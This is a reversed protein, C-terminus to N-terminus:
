SNKLGVPLYREMLGLRYGTYKLGSRLLASPILWPARRVLYQLESFVFRIGEQEANGLESRVWAERAHFKGIDFYRRFEQAPSYDHSHFVMADACYAVKWDALLMKAAVYTDESLIASAPFGGVEMLTSRRYAAFSNSIFAAKIGIQAADNLSRVVSTGPYNFLRAHAGIPKANPHPLQRGYACGVRPDSFASVLRGITDPDALLADQTMYIIIEVDSLIEAALQRTTGHNFDSRAIVSVECGHAKAIAVTADNSSSDIILVRDLHYNQADLKKLVAEWQPGPNLTPIVLGVSM